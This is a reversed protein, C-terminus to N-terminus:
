AGARMVDVTRLRSARWAPVVGSALGIGLTILAALLVTENAVTYNPFMAGLVTLMPKETGLALLIGLTGGLACLVVSQAIFYGVVSADTFGLAKM